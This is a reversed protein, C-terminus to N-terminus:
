AEEGPKEAILFLSHGFPLQGHRLLGLESRFMRFLMSNVWAPMPWSLNTHNDKMARPWLKQLLKSALVVLAIPPFLLSNVFTCRKINFGAAHIKQKLEGRTYRRFHGAVEDNRSYLWPHAPVSIVMVGGPELIRWCEALALQDENVHELVDFLCAVGISNSQIPIQEVKARMGQARNRAQALGAAQHDLETFYLRDGLGFLDGLWGGTGAGLDLIRRPRIEALEQRLMPIFLARRGRFWWHGRELQALQQFASRRM